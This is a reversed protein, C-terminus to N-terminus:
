IIVVDVRYVLMSITKKIAFKFRKLIGIHLKDRLTPTSNEDKYNGYKFRLYLAKCETGQESSRFLVFSRLKSQM